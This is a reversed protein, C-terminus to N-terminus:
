LDYETSAPPAWASDDIVPAPAARHTFIENPYNKEPDVGLQRAAEKLDDVIGLGIWPYDKNRGLSNAWMALRKGLGEPKGFCRTKDYEDAM